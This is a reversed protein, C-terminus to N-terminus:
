RSLRRFRLRYPEHQRPRGLAERIRVPLARFSQQRRLYARVAPDSYREARNLADVGFGWLMAIARPERVGRYVVRAWVYSPRYGMYYAMRGQGIWKDWGRERAGLARHHRFPLDELSRTDWGAVRARLEDIGDWGMREVLPLVDSLCVSRYARTAGRVHGRTVHTPKWVGNTDPEYCVGGTIGLRPDADFAAMIRAFFDPELEVDADLKTVVDPLDSLEELGAHFARVVPAGRAAEGDDRAVAISKVWPTAATLNRIVDATGDTSGNDVIMWETPTVSQARMCEALRRLNDAENHAPTVVAYRLSTV